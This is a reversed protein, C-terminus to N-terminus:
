VGGSPVQIDGHPTLIRVPQGYETVTIALKGEILEITDHDRFSLKAPGEIVVEADEGVSFQALGYTLTRIRPTETLDPEPGSVRRCPM